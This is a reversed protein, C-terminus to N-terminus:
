IRFVIFIYAQKQGITGASIKHFDQMTILAVSFTNGRNVLNYLTIISGGEPTVSGASAPETPAQGYSVLVLM